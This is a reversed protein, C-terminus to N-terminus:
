QESVTQITEIPPTPQVFLRVEEPMSKMKLYVQALALVDKSCYNSIRQLDKEKWFINKVESGDIDDKSSSVGFVDTLGDLSVSADWVNFSWIKKTDILHSLEWPKLHAYDFMKPLCFGNIILRKAIYPFDFVDGNHSCIAYFNDLNKEYKGAVSNFIPGLKEHNVFDSLLKKEDEDAFSIIKINYFNDGDNRWIVGVSICIIMGLEPCIPAKINYLETGVELILGEYIQELSLDDTKKKTTKKKKFGETKEAEALVEADKLPKQSLLEKYRLELTSEFDKKFRKRFIEKQHETLESFSEKQSTTEIDLFLIRNLPKQDLM